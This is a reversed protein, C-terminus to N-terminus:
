FALNGSLLSRSHCPLYPNKLVRVNHGGYCINKDNGGKRDNGDKRDNGHFRSDIFVCAELDFQFHYHLFM